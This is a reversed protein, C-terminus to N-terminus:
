KNAAANPTFLSEGYEKVGFDGILKQTDDSLIWNIFDQAGEANIKSSKEPNVAIVGYYNLLQKDKECIIDMDTKSKTALWTARDSLTYAKKEEAMLLTAGMGQGASIYNPNDAPTINLNKWISLEKTHTGSEDGRTVFADKNDFITRFTAQADSNNEIEGKPGVVVFDNYMVDFRKLGHGAEIYAEEKAKAHVLLVDAEGNEGMKLAEGTGVAITDVEWGTKKTFDPLLEDLLGSDQTSTTTALIIKGKRTTKSVSTETSTNKTSSETTGETKQSDSQKKANSCSSLATILIICSFILIIKNKM